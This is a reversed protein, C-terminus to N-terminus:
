WVGEVVRFSVYFLGLPPIWCSPYSLLQVLTRRTPAVHQLSAAQSLQTMEANLGLPAFIRRYRAAKFRPGAAFDDSGFIAIRVTEELNYYTEGYLIML